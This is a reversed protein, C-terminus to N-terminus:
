KKSRQDKQKMYFSRYWANLDKTRANVKKAQKVAEARSALDSPLCSPKGSLLNVISCEGSAAAQACAQPDGVTGACTQSQTFIHQAEESVDTGEPRFQQLIATIKQIELVKDLESEVGFGIRKKKAAYSRYWSILAAAEKAADESTNRLQQLEALTPPLVVDSHPTSSIKCGASSEGVESKTVRACAMAESAMTAAEATADPASLQPNHKKLIGALKLVDAAYREQEAIVHKQEIANVVQQAAQVAEEPVSLVSVDGGGSLASASASLESATAGLSKELSSISASLDETKGAQQQQLLSASLVTPSIYPARLGSLALSAAPINGAAAGLLAATQVRNRYTSPSGSGLGYDKLNLPNYVKGLPLKGSKPFCLHMNQDVSWNLGLMAPNEPLQYQNVYHTHAKPCRYYISPMVQKAYETLRNAYEQNVGSFPQVNVNIGYM